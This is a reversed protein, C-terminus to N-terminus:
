PNSDENSPTEVTPAPTQAPDAQSRAYCFTEGTEDKSEPCAELGNLPNCAALVLTGAVLFWQRKTM